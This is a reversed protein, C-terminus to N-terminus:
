REKEERSCRPCLDRKGTTWGHAKALAVAAFKSDAQGAWSGCRLDGDRM